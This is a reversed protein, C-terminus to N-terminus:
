AARRGVLSDAECRPRRQLRPMKAAAVDCATNQARRFVFVEHHAALAVPATTNRTRAATRRESFSARTVLRNARLGASLAVCCDVLVLGVSTAADTLRTALEVLSGDPYRQPRTVVVVHGGTRLMPACYNLTTALDHIASEPSRTPSGAPGEVVRLATLLLDVRAVLGATQIATSMTPRLDLVSGDCLAGERKAATVNARATTWWPPNATLGLAHRGARLAEVLVTGTGCDPDVVLDGCGTYTAIAHAAVAPPVLEIDTETGPVCGSNQLQRRLNRQGTVWVSQHSTM